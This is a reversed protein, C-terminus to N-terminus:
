LEHGLTFISKPDIFVSWSKFFEKGEDAGMFNVMAELDSVEIMAVYMYPSDSPM